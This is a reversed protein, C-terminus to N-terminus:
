EQPEPAGFALEVSAIAGKVTVEGDATWDQKGDNYTGHIGTTGPHAARFEVLPGVQHAFLGVSPDDATFEVAADAGLQVQTGDAAFAKFEVSVKQDQSLIVSMSFGEISTNATTFSLVAYRTPWLLYAIFALLGITTTLLIM